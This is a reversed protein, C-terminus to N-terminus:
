SFKLSQEYMKLARAVVPCSDFSCSGGTKRCKIDEVNPPVFEAYVCVVRFYEWIKYYITKKLDDTDIDPPLFGMRVLTLINSM